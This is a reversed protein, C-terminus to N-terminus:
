KSRVAYMLAVQLEAERVTVLDGTMEIAKQEATRDTVPIGDSSIKSMMFARAYEVRADALNQAAELVAKLSENM